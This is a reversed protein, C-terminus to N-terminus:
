TAIFDRPPLTTKGVSVKLVMTRNLAIANALCHVVHHVQCGFGCAKNLDCLLKRATTCNAPHQLDHLYQWVADTVETRLWAQTPCCLM